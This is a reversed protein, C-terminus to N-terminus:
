QRGRAGRTVSPGHLNGCRGHRRVHQGAVFAVPRGHGAVEVDGIFHIMQFVAVPARHAALRQGAVLPVGGFHIAAVGPVASVRERRLVHRHMTLHSVHETDARILDCQSAARGFRHQRQDTAVVPQSRAVLHQIGVDVVVAHDVGHPPQLLTTAHLHLADCQRRHWATLLDQLGVILRERAQRAQFQQQQGLDAVAMPQHQRHRLDGLTRTCAADIHNDIGRMAEALDVVRHRLQLGIENADVQM